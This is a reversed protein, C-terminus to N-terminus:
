INVYYQWDDVLPRLCTQDTTFAFRFSQPEATHEFLEGTVIVHGLKTVELKIWDDEYLPRLTATGELSQDLTNLQTIFQKLSWQEVYFPREARFGGSQVVLYCGAGSGDAYVEISRFELAPNTTHTQLIITNSSTM